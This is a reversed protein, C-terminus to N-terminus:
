SSGGGTRPDEAVERIIMMGIKQLHNRKGAARPNNYGAPYGAPDRPRMDM